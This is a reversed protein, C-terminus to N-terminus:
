AGGDGNSDVIVGISTINGVSTINGAISMNGTIPLGATPTALTSGDAFEMAGSIVAKGAVPTAGSGMALGSVITLLQQIVVNGTFTTLPVDVTAQTGKVLITGDAKIELTATGAGSDLKIEGPDISLTQTQGGSVITLTFQTPQVNLTASSEGDTSIETYSGDLKLDNSYKDGVEERRIVNTAPPVDESRYNIGLAAGAAVDGTIVRHDAEGARSKEQNTYNEEVSFVRGNSNVNVESRAENFKEYNRSFIKIIDDFKSLFVMCMASAKAIVSGGLMAGVMAGGKSRLLKDGPIEDASATKSFTAGQVSSTNVSPAGQKNVTVPPVYPTDATARAVVGMILMHSSDRALRVSDGPSPRGSGGVPNMWTVNTYTAGTVDDRCKCVNRDADVSTVSARIFM